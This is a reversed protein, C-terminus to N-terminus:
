QVEDMGVLDWQLFLPVLINNKVLPDQHTLRIAEERNATKLLYASVLQQPLNKDHEPFPIIDGGIYLKNEGILTDVFSIHADTFTALQDYERGKLLLVLYYPTTAIDM